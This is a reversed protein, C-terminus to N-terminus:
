QALVEITGNESVASLNNLSSIMQIFELLSEKEFDYKGTFTMGALQEPKFNIKANFRESLTTLIAALPENHFAIQHQEAPPAQKKALEPTVHKAAKEKRRSIVFHQMADLSLAQGPLLIASTLGKAKLTSDAEVRVKGSLLKVQVAKGEFASICFVTGLATTSLQGAHVTFPRARDKAVDFQAEGKLVMERKSSPFPVPYTLESNPKLAVTSGDELAFSLTETGANFTRQYRVSHPAPAPKLQAVTQVPSANNFLTYLLGASILLLVAAAAAMLRYRIIKRRNGYSNQRIVILMKESVERPISQQPEFDTWSKETLYKNLVEPHRIFYNSIAQREKEECENNLYREIDDESIKM